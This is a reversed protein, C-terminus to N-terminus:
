HARVRDLRERQIKLAREIERPDAKPPEGAPAGKEGAPEGRTEVDLQDIAVAM